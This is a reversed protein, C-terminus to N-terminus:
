REVWCGQSRFYEEVRAVRENLQGDGRLDRHRRIARCASKVVYGLDNVHGFYSARFLPDLYSFTLVGDTDPRLCAGIMGAYLDSIARENKSLRKEAFSAVYDLLHVGVVIRPYVAVDSELRHARSIAQGYLDSGNLEACIGAEVAGRFLVGEALETLMLLGLQRLLSYLSILPRHGRQGGLNIKLLALDTFFQLGVAPSASKTVLRLQEPGLKEKVADRVAHDKPLTRNLIMIRERFREVTGFTARTLRSFTRKEKPTKPIGVFRDLKGGQGLLDVLAVIYFNARNKGTQESTAPRERGQEIYPWCYEENGTVERVVTCFGPVRMDENEHTLVAGLVLLGQFPGDYKDIRFRQSNWVFEWRRRRVPKREVDKRDRLSEFCQKGIEERRKFGIAPLSTLYKEMLYYRVEGQCYEVRVRRDLNMKSSLLFTEEITTERHDPLKSLDIDSILFKKEIEIFNDSVVRTQRTM